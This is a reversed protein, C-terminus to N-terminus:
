KTDFQILSVKGQNTLVGLYIGDPSFSIQQIREAQNTDTDNSLPFSEKSSIKFDTLNVTYLNSDDAILVRQHDPQFTIAQAPQDQLIIRSIEEGSETNWFIVANQMTDETSIATTLIKSDPSLAYVDVFDWLDIRKWLQGDEIKQLQFSARAHWLIAANDPSFTVNYVPAATSFGSLTKRLEGNQSDWISASIEDASYILVSSGDPSCSGGYAHFPIPISRITEANAADYFVIKQEDEIVAATQNIACFGIIIQNEQNTEFRVLPNLQPIPYRLIASQNIQLINRADPTWALYGAQFFAPENQEVPSFGCSLILFIAFLVTIRNIRLFAKKM